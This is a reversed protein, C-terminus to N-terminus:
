FRSSMAGRQRARGVSQVGSRRAARLVGHEGVRRLAGGLQPSREQKEASPVQRGCTVGVGRRGPMARRARGEGGGGGTGPTPLVDSPGSPPCPDGHLSRGGVARQPDSTAEAAPVTPCARRLAQIQFVRQGLLIQSTPHPGGQCTGWPGAGPPQRRPLPTRRRLRQCRGM